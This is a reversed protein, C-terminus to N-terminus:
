AYSLISCFRFCLVVSPEIPTERVSKNLLFSDDFISFLKHPSRRRWGSVDTLMLEEADDVNPITIKGQSVFHYQYIDSSLNCM